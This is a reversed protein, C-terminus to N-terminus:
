PTDHDDDCTADRARVRRYEECEERPTSCMQCISNGHEDKMASMGGCSGKLQRNSFIVGVALCLIAIGFVAAALLFTSLAQWVPKPAAPAPPATQFLGQGAPSVSEVYGSATRILLYAAIHHETAFALGREPGLVMLTTALADATMCNPAIVSASALQHRVPFGTAPDITHSYRVGDQEFYNRYDGSTALAQDHLAVVASIGSPLQAPREIGLRWPTGAKTGRARVEGGIEVMHDVLGRQQLLQSVADVGYGKAIASLDLSVEPHSKKIAPPDTRVDVLAFGVSQLAEDIKEQPPPEYSRRDAGFSWMGVLRGVTPDFAGASLRSVELARGVVLATEPSVSFWDTSRSQNFRSLESEPDYTSMLSNIQALREDVASQVDATSSENPNPLTWKISYTTGMTRGTIAAVDAASAPVAALLVLVAILVRPM